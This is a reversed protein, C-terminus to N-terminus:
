DDFDTSILIYTNEGIIEHTMEDYSVDSFSQVYERFARGDINIEKKIIVDIANESRKKVSVHSSNLNFHEKLGARIEKAIDVSTKEITLGM